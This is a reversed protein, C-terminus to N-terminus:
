KKIDIIAQKIRDLFEDAQNILSESEEKSPVFYVDYDAKEREAEAKALSKAYFEEILGKTVFELGFQAVLGAHTRPYIKKLSLLAKAAHYMSYYAESISDALMDNDRLINASKLKEESRQLHKEWEKMCCWV